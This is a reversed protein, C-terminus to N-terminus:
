SYVLYDMESKKKKLCFVAYSIIQHSSNLRTSKRDLTRCIRPMAGACTGPAFIETQWPTPPMNPALPVIIKVFSRYGGEDNRSAGSPASWLHAIACRPIELNRTRAERAGSHRLFLPLLVMAMVLDSCSLTTM